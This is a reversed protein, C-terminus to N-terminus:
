FPRLHKLLLVNNIEIWLVHDWYNLENSVDACLATIGGYLLTHEFMRILGMHQQSFCIADNCDSSETKMRSLIARM